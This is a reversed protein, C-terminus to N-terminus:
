VEPKLKVSSWFIASANKGRWRADEMVSRLYNLDETPVKTVTRAIRPITLKAFRKGDRTLNLTNVFYRLLEGRETRRDDIPKQYKAFLTDIKQM